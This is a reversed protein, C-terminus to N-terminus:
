AMHLRTQVECSWTPLVAHVSFPLFSLWLFPVPRYSFNSFLLVGKLSSCLYSSSSSISNQLVPPVSSTFWKKGICFSPLGLTVSSCPNLVLFLLKKVCTKIWSHAKALLHQAHQLNVHILFYLFKFESHPPFESIKHFLDTPAPEPIVSSHM